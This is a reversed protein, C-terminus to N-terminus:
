DFDVTMSRQLLPAMEAKIRCHYPDNAYAELQDATLKVVLAADLSRDSGLVDAGCEFSQAMPVDETNLKQLIKVLAERNEPTPDKLEFFVIHTMKRSRKGIMGCNM